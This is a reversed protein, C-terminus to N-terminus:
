GKDVMRKEFSDVKSNVVRRALSRARLVPSGVYTVLETLKALAPIPPVTSSSISPKLFM